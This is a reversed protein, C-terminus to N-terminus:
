KNKNYDMIILNKPLFQDIDNIKFYLMHLLNKIVLLVQNFTFYSYLYM